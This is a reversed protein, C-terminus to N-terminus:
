ETPSRIIHFLCRDTKNVHVTLLCFLIYKVTIFRLEFKMRINKDTILKKSNEVIHFPLIFCLITDMPDYIDNM